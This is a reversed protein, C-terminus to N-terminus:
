LGDTSDTGSTEDPSQRSLLELASTGTSRPDPFGVAKAFKLEEEFTARCFAIHSRSRPIGFQLSRVLIWKRRKKDSTEEITAEIRGLTEECARHAHEYLRRLDPLPDSPTADTSNWPHRLHTTMVWEPPTKDGKSENCSDCAPVLNELSDPGGHAFPVVHDMVESRAENCYVCRGENACLVALHVWM